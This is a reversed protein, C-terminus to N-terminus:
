VVSKRDKAHESSAGRQSLVYVSSGAVHSDKFADAHISIFMDARYHRAKAIRSRLRMFYDGERTLVAHMGQQQNILQALTRALALTVSKEKTGRPGSAGPDEGGHGADVAIVLDRTNVSLSDNDIVTDKRRQEAESDSIDVVLRHGYQKNPTLLFCKNSSYKKLDFVVRLDGGDHIGARVRQLFKDSADPQTLPLEASVGQLDLVLRYPDSLMSEHHAVPASLDFVVRTSDPASWIRINEVHITAAPVGTVLGALILGLIVHKVKM